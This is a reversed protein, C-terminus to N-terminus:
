WFVQREDCENNGVTRENDLLRESKPNRIWELPCTHGQIELGIKTLFSGRISIRPSQPAPIPGFSARISRFDTPRKIKATIRPAWLGEETPDHSMM